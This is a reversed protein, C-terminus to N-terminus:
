LQVGKKYAEEFIPNSQQGSDIIVDIKQDGIIKKIQVLFNIKRRYQDARSLVTNCRILLDIDGGRIRDDTRSGFVKITANEGFVLKAVKIIADIDKDRLRM